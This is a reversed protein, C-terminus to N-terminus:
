SGTRRMNCPVNRLIRGYVSAAITDSPYKMLEWATGHFDWKEEITRSQLVRGPTYVLSGVVLRIHSFGV